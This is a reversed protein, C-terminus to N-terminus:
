NSNAASPQFLVIDVTHFLDTVEAFLAAFMQGGVLVLDEINDSQNFCTAFANGIQGDLGQLSDPDTVAMESYYHVRHHLENFIGGDSQSAVREWHGYYHDLIEAKEPSEGLAMAVAFDVAFARLYMVERRMREPQLSLHEALNSLANEEREAPNCVVDVLLAAIEIPSADKRQIVM